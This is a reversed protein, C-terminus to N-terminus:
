WMYVRERYEGEEVRHLVLDERMEEPTLRGKFKAFWRERFVEKGLLGPPQVESRLAGLMDEWGDEDHAAFRTPLRDGPDVRDQTLVYLLIETELGGAATLATPYVPEETPFRLVLPAVLGRIEVRDDKERDPSVKAAVFCWGKEVHADIARRDDDSVEFGREELWATLGGGEDSRVVSYDYVGARGAALVDVGASEAGGQMFVTFWGFTTVLLLVLGAAALPRRRRDAWPLAGTAGLLVALAAALTLLTTTWWIAPSIFLIRPGTHAAMRFFLQHAAEPSLSGVEPVAPVPVVWGFEEVEEPGAFEFRSQILLTEMRGDHHLIARQYPLDPPIVERAFFKGDARASAQSLLVALLAALLSKRM